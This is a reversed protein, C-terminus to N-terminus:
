SHTEEDLLEAVRALLPVAAALQKQGAAPLAEIAAGLAVLRHDRWADIKRGLEAALELRAVRRDDADRQRVLLGQEGLQRVLTSVTNPALRLEQAAEAISVGPRRRVLRALELQAGTLASLEVPRAGHRRSTRRVAGIARLLEDAIQEPGSRPLDPV